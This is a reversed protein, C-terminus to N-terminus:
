PRPGPPAPHPKFHLVQVQSRTLLGLRCHLQLKGCPGWCLPRPKHCPKHHQNDKYYYVGPFALINLNLLSTGVGIKMSLETSYDHQTKPLLSSSMKTPGQTATCGEHHHHHHHNHHLCSRPPLAMLILSATCTTDGLMHLHLVLELWFAMKTASYHDHMRPKLGIHLYLQVIFGARVPQPEHPHVQCGPASVPQPGRDQCLQNLLDHCPRQAHCCQLMACSMVDNCLFNSGLVETTGVMPVHFVYPVENSRGLGVELSLGEGQNVGLCSTM